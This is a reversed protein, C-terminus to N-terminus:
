VGNPQPQVIDLLRRMKADGWGIQMLEVMTAVTGRQLAQYARLVFTTEGLERRRRRRDATCAYVNL